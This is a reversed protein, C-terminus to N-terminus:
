LPDIGRRLTKYVEWEAVLAQPSAFPVELTNELLTKLLTVDLAVEPIAAAPANRPVFEHRAARLLDSFAVTRPQAINIVRPLNHINVLAALVDSLTKVGIYSRKPSSGDAFRDLRFGPRWGGLVSDLGAINGIRLATVPVNLKKGLHKAKTEMELKALGYANAPEPRSTESQIDSAAGYVAASSCLLVRNGAKAAIQICAEALEWNESLNDNRGPVAGALCLIVNVQSAANEFSAPELRPDFCMWNEVSKPKRGQWLVPANRWYSRLVTGIRGSAGLVLTNQALSM